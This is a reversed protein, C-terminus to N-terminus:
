SRGRWLGDLRPVDFGFYEAANNYSIDRVMRGVLDMDGPILGKAMQTGLLNCLVRRFYEHRPYSLFSRSDTVMGVFRALVGAVALDRLQMEMYDKQDLFWWGGGLQMKGAISGDQFNGLMAALPMTDRPNINYLITKALQSTQDLRDLFKALPRAIEFDGISDFGTDPGATNFMRTNNNRLVGLHFQQTWGKEHDMMGFEYLMASKFRAAEESDLAKGGRVKLFIAEIEHQTYDEAYITELGHDSIRCGMQAFFDHRKRLAQVYSGFDRIDVGAAIALGDVWANFVGLNEVAMGKDPRWTPLVQVDFAPDAAIAGHHELSDAPDDTTCVLVVNSRKMLGRTSYAPDALRENCAIWIEKATAPSLLDYIDFFRALELAAWHYLPNGLLHPLTAAWKEFKEWDSAGGTCYLEAVGDSRMARWKYHDGSLWIEAVNRFRKDAAIQDAPLHCHYDIVPLGEAYGHYLRRAHDTELLFDEHIFPSHM